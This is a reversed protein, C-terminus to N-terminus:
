DYTLHARSDISLDLTGSDGPEMKAVASLLLQFKYDLNENSGLKVRFRGLYDFSPGAVNSIDIETVDGSMDLVSIQRLIGALYTVKPTEAEGPAITDGVAPAIPTLGTVRILYQAQDSEVKSLLKCNRDIAWIGDEATVCAIAASETVVIEVRNPMKRNILANEIYPLRSTVRSGTTIRNLFFLNDGKEIGSAEIIEEDSYISNGTVEITSVRFFVSMGFVLAACIIIFSLPAYLASRRRGNRRQAGAM